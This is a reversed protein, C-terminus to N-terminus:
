TDHLFTTDFRCLVASLDLELTCSALLDVEGEDFFVDHLDPQNWWFTANAREIVHQNIPQLRQSFHTQHLQSLQAM